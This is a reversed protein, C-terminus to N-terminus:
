ADDREDGFKGPGAGDDLGGVFLHSVGDRVRRNRLQVRFQALGDRRAHSAGPLVHLEATQGEEVANEAAGFVGAGRRFGLGRMADFDVGARM